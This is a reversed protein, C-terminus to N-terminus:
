PAPIEGSGRVILQTPMVVRRALSTDGDLRAFLRDAALQGVRRFDQSIVTVAPDLMDGLPIDDFGVVAVRHSLGLDRLARVVGITILNQASHIATPPNDSELLRRAAAYAQLEDALNVVILNEDAELGLSGTAERYGRRRERATQITELDGLHAIRRHGHSALHRVAVGTAGANDVIVRDTEIGTPERDVFVIPTGRNLALQLYSQDPAVATLILGDVRRRLFARTHQHEAEVSENLSAAFTAVNRAMAVVEVGGHIQAALPNAVNSITLGITRTRGGDKRLSGASDDPVYGLENIAKQVRAATAAAVGPEGNVVRAVTKFGVGARAAVQRITPHGRGTSTSEPPRDGSQADAEPTMM